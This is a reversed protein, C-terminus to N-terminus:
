PGHITPLHFVKCERQIIKETLVGICSLCSSKPIFVHSTDPVIIFNPYYNAQGVSPKIKKLTIFDQFLYDWAKM